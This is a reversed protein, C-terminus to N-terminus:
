QARNSCDQQKSCLVSVFSWPSLARCSSSYMHLMVRLPFMSHECAYDLVLPEVIISCYVCRCWSGTCMLPVSARNSHREGMLTVQAVREKEQQRAQM